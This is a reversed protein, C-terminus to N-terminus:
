KDYYFHNYNQNGLIWNNSNKIEKIEDDTIRLDDKFNEFDTIPHISLIGKKVIPNKNPTLGMIFFNTMEFKTSWPILFSIQIKELVTRQTAPNYLEIYGISKDCTLIGEYEYSNDEAYKKIDKVGNYYKVKIPENEETLELVSTILLNGTYYYMYVINTFFPNDVNKNEIMEDIPFLQSISINLANCIELVTLIDPIIEGKEYKYVTAKTKGIRDGLENLTINRSKRYFKLNMSFNNNEINYM